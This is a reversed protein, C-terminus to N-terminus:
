RPWCTPGTPASGAPSTPSSAPGAPPAPRASRPRLPPWPHAGEPQRRGQRRPRVHHGARRGGAPLEGAARRPAVWALAHASELAPLIGEARACLEVAAVAEADTSPTTSPAGPQPSTPTSPGSARTTWARRSRLAGRHDPRARGAPLQLPLRAARRPAGNAVAAGGPPRSASWGPRAHGRLRRVHRGRQLRRGRLGGRRRARRRGAPRACQAAPRRASSGSSSASWGRTRIRAWSRASATTRRTRRDDGLAAHGRQHRGQAHARRLTVPVVTAGLLEMRFVNLEQRDIDVEGMYVTCDLGLHAAATAAAVGHQGPAPRPSWRPRAWGGPWCPRAWRTTSRTAAPTPWTRASSCCGCARAGRVAAGGRHGPTPRGAYDRLM